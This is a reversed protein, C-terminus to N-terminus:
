MNEKLKEISLEIEEVEEFLSEYEYSDYAEFDSHIIEPYRDYVVQEIGEQLEEPSYYVEDNFLYITITEKM